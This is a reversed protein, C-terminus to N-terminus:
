QSPAFDAKPARCDPCRWGDPLNEFPTGPPIGRAPDGAAPQYVYGCWTCRFKRMQCVRPAAGVRLGVTRM